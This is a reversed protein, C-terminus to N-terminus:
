EGGWRSGQALKVVPGRAPVSRIKHGLLLFLEDFEGTTLALAGVIPRALVLFKDLTFDLELFKALPALLLKYM